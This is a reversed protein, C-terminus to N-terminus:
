YNIVEVLCVFIISWQSLMMLPLTLGIQRHIFMPILRWEKKISRLRKKVIYFLKVKMEYATNWGEMFLIPDWVADPLYTVKQIGFSNNYQVSFKGKEGTKTTVLIVGNAARSGYIAASAADKLVSINAINSPNVDSLSSPM